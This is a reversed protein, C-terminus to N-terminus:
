ADSMSNLPGHSEVGLANGGRERMANIANIHLAQIVISSTFGPTTKVNDVEMSFIELLKKHLDRSPHYTLTAYLRRVYTLTAQM